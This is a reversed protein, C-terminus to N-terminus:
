FNYLFGLHFRIGSLDAEENFEEITVKGIDYRLGGFLDIKKGLSFYTGGLLSVGHTTHYNTDPQFDNTEKVNFVAWALGIYPKIKGSTNFIYKGGLYLPIMLLESELNITEIIGAKKYYAIEVFIEYNGKINYSLHFLGSFGGGYVEKFNEDFKNVYGAGLGLSFYSRAAREEVPEEVVEAEKEEVVEEKKVEKVEEEKKEEVVEVPEEEVAKPAMKIKKAKKFQGSEPDKEMVAVKVGDEICAFEERLTGEKPSLIEACILYDGVQLGELILAKDDEVPGVKLYSKKAIKDAVTYVFSGGEDQLIKGKPLVVVDQYEKKLRKFTLAATGELKKASNDIALTVDGEGVDVVVAYIDGDPELPIQQGESFLARDEPGVAVVALMKKDNVVVAVVAGEGVEADKEVNLSRIQGSVPSKIMRDEANAKLEELRASAEEIMRQAQVEARESREKWNQRAKLIRQWKNVEDEQIKIQDALANDIVAIVWDQSVLDGESVKLDTIKGSVVAKAEISEPKFEASFHSYESFDTGKIEKALVKVKRPCKVEESEQGAGFGNVSIMMMLLLIVMVGAFKRM